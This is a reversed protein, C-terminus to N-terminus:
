RLEKWVSEEGQARVAGRRHVGGERSRGLGQLEDLSFITNAKIGRGCSVSAKGMPVTPGPARFSPTAQPSGPTM